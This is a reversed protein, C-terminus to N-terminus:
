DKERKKRGAGGGREMDPPNTLKQFWKKINLATLRLDLSFYACCPVTYSVEEPGM